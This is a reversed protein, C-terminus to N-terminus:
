GEAAIRALIQPYRHAQRGVIFFTAKVNLAKLADLVEATHLNPGDDFTLAITHARPLGSHFINRQQLLALRSKQAPAAASAGALALAAMILFLGRGCGM